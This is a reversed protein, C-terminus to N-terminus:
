QFRMNRLQTSQLRLTRGLGSGMRDAQILAGLFASFVPLGVREGMRQMAEVRTKGMRIEAMFTSLEDRLAGDRGKEVTRAVGAGFDLGAEVCLTLLDIHYPLDRFIEDHRKKVQDRLWIFPFVIGVGFGALILMFSGGVFVMIAASLAVSMMLAVLGFLVMEAPTLGALGGAQMIRTRLYERFNESLWPSLRKTLPQLIHHTARNGEEQEKRLEQASKGLRQLLPLSLLFVSGASLIITGILYISM